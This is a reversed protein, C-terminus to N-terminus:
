INEGTVYGIRYNDEGALPATSSFDVNLLQWRSVDWGSVTGAPKIVSLDSHPLVAQKSIAVFSSASILALDKPAELATWTEIKPWGFDRALAAFGPSQIFRHMSEADQWLYLPAYRNESVSLEADQKRAFLYAKFILGRFGMLRAGNLAIRQEIITMDYDAPLSFRYHMIIM